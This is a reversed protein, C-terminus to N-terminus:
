LSFETSCFVDMPMQLINIHYLTVNTDFTYAGHCHIDIFGPVIRKSGYDVDVEKTGYDYINKIKEGEMEIQAPFFQDAIWVKKSQIIM